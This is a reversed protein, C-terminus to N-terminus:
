LCSSHQHDARTVPQGQEIDESARHTRAYRIPRTDGDHDNGLGPLRWTRRARGSEDHPNIPGLVARSHQIPRNPLGELVIKHRNQMTPLLGSEHPRSRCLQTVIFVLSRCVKEVLQNLPAGM